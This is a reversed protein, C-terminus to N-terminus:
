MKEEADLWELLEFNPRQSIVPVPYPKYIELLRLAGDDDHLM